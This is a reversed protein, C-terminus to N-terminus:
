FPLNVPISPMWRRPAPWACACSPRGGAACRKLVGEELFGGNVAYDVDPRYFLWRDRGAYTKDNGAGLWRIMGYQVFPRLTRGFISSDELANEYAHMDRLLGRNANMIGAIVGQRCDAAKGLAAHVSGFIDYYQPVPSKRDGGLYARFDAFQQSLPIFYITFIFVAALVRKQRATIKTKGAEALAQEERSSYKPQM